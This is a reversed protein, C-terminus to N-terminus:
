LLVVLKDAPLLFDKFSRRYIYDIHLCFKKDPVGPHVDFVNYSSVVKDCHYIDFKVFSFM